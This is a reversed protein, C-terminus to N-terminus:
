NYPMDRSAPERILYYSCILYRKNIGPFVRPTRTKKGTQGEGLEYWIRRQFGDETCLFQFSLDEGREVGLGHSDLCHYASIDVTPREMLAVVGGRLRGCGHQCLRVMLRSPHAKTAAASAYKSQVSHMKTCTYFAYHM